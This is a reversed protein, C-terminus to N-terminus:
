GFVTTNNKAILCQVYPALHADPIQWTVSLQNLMATEQPALHGDGMALDAANLLACLKQQPSLLQASAQLFQQFPTRRTYALAADLVPDEPIVKFIDGRENRDLHGDSASLYIMTAALAVKPTLQIQQGQFGDFM